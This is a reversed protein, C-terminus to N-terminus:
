DLRLLRKALEAYVRKRNLVAWIVVRRGGVRYVIRFDGARIRRLGHFAGALPKGFLEPESRLRHEIADLMRGRLRRDVAALDDAIEARYVIEYRDATM